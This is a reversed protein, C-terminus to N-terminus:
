VHARGIESINRIEDYEKLAKEAAEKTPFYQVNWLEFLTFDTRNGIKREVIQLEKENYSGDSWVHVGVDCVNMTGRWACHECTGNHNPNCKPCIKYITSGTDINNAQMDELVSKIESLTM